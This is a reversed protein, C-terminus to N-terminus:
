PCDTVKVAVTVLVLPVGVPVTVKISPPVHAAGPVMRCGAVARSPVPLAVNVLELKDAAPLGWVIM